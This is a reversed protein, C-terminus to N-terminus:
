RFDGLLEWMNEDDPFGKVKYIEHNENHKLNFIRDITLSFMDDLMRPILM